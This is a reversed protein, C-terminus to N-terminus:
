VGMATTRFTEPVAWGHATAARMFAEIAEAVGYDMAPGRPGGMMVRRDLRAPKPDLACMAVRVQLFVSEMSNAPSWGSSTLLEMCMAGGATVHGGGGEMFPMFRPRVVRVFPPSFPYDPGFRVELVISTVGAKKMDSALPLSADFSHLQVIWQYLNSVNEFDIYWGLEHLPTKSQVVQLRMLERSLSKSAADTAFSPPQLRPLSSLDLSGPEFDTSSRDIGISAPTPPGTGDSHLGILKSTPPRPHCPKVYVDRGIAIEMSSGRSAPKKNPPGHAEETEADSSFLICTDEADENDSDELLQVARKVPSATAGTTPGITRLPIASLPIDLPQGDQGYVPRGPAQPYFVQSNAGKNGAKAAGVRPSHQQTLGGGLTQVFLYRCQNWDLFEVVYHPTTSIFDSPANIIENLSLCRTFDIDSNPWSQGGGASYSLSTTLHPSFYVGDGFARGNATEKFDLGNRVISHWNPLPSGHWAFITPNSPPLKGEAAAKQLARNFRLERDPSGQAFRFQIWGDMGSIREHERNRGRGAARPIGDPAAPRRGKAEPGGTRQRAVARSRDVQFICSRNSSVIWQLLGLAAPSIREMSRLTSHPHDTLWEEIELISPLTGLIHCMAAGKSNEDMNDFDTDYLFVDVVDAGSRAPASGPKTLSDAGVGPEQQGAIWHVSSEGMVEIVATKTASCVEQIRAHQTLTQGPKRFALWKTPAMNHGFNRTAEDEFVLRVNNTAISALSIRAQLPNATTNCLDPVRLRLGVPLHRIALAPRSQQPAMYRGYHSPQIASYCLSVLLDVVYPETLIEHEISPGFGMAMYQFLCLPQEDCVYPRLAQFDEKLRRHCRLCYDTCKVFYRMAFQMAVLPVSRESAHDKELLHDPDLVQRRGPASDTDSPTNNSDTEQFDTGAPPPNLQSDEAFLGIRSLFFENAEEWTLGQAERIKLLSVFSDCMFSDLSNSVLLKEFDAGGLALDRAGTDSSETALTSNSDTFARLAQNFSPKYKSCKGIRFKLDTHAAPQDMVAQLSNYQREFRLLLVVHEAPKVDWAEMAENSLALKDVRISISLIGSAATKGFDDLFGVKYGAQKVRRLDRRIRQLLSKQCGTPKPSHHPYRPVSPPLGFEDGDSPYDAEYAADYDDDEDDDAETPSEDESDIVRSIEKKLYSAVETVMEYVSMGLLYDQAAKVAAVVSSPPDTDDTWVMFMNGDPYEAVDQALAQIRIDRQLSEHRYKIVVEGDSDGNTVSLVGAIGGSAAKQAATSVDAKFKKFSM